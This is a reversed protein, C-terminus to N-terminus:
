MCCFPMTVSEKHMASNAPWEVLSKGAVAVAAAALEAGCWGWWCWWGQWCGAVLVAVGAEAGPLVVWASGSWGAGMRRGWEGRQRWGQPPSRGAGVASWEAPELGRGEGEEAGAGEGAPPPLAPCVPALQSAPPDPPTVGGSCRATWEPAAALHLHTWM